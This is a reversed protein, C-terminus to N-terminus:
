ASKKKRERSKQTVKVTVRVNEKRSILIALTDFFRQADFVGNVEVKEPM